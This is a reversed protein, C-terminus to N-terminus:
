IRRACLAGVDEWVMWHKNLAVAGHRAYFPQAAPSDLNVDVCVKRADQEIFWCALHRLLESAIGSRRHPPAVYLYQVEGDCDYRTTLHGAVYGVIREDSLAVFAARPALGHRPHHRGELYGAMREDAPGNDPDGARCAAM